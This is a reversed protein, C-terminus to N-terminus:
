HINFNEPEFRAIGNTEHRLKSLAVYALRRARNISGLPRHEPLCHWPNFSLGDGYEQQEISDFEQIPIKVTAVKIFPSESEKWPKSLDEVPMNQPDKQFQIMFDYYYEKTRLQQAMTERLYDDSPKEPIASQESNQPKLSYKVVRDGFLYPSISWFRAELLSGFNKLTSLLRYTVGPHSLFYLILRFKGSVLATILKSFGVVNPTVFYDASAMVFDHTKADKEEVLVKDGAVGMLKIALGRIDKVHDPAPPSNQNSYRLWCPYTLADKFVGVKLDESLNPSVTFEAKLLCIQKPHADRRIKGGSPTDKKMKKGLMEILKATAESEGPVLTEHITLEM